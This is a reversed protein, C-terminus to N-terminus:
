KVGAQLSVSGFLHRLAILLALAVLITYAFSKSIAGGTASNANPDRQLNPV